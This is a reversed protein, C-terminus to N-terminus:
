DVPQLVIRPIRRFGPLAAINSIKPEIGGNMNIDGNLNKEQLVENECEDSNLMEDLEEKTIYVRYKSNVRIDDMTVDNAAGATSNSQLGEKISELKPITPLSKSRPRSFSPLAPSSPHPNLPPFTASISNASHPSTPYTPSPIVMDMQGIPYFMLIALSEPQLSM